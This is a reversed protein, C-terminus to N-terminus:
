HVLLEHIEVLGNFGQLLLQGSSLAGSGHGLSPCRLRFLADLRQSSLDALQDRLHLLQSHQAASLLLPHLPLRRHLPRQPVFHPLPPQLLLLLEAAAHVLTCRQALLPPTLLVVTFRQLSLLQGCRDTDCQRGANM